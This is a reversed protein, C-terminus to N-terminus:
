EWVGELGFVLGTRM